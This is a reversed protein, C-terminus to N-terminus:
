NPKGPFFQVDEFERVAAIARDAFDRAAAEDKKFTLGVGFFNDWKKAMREELRREAESMAGNNERPPNTMKM